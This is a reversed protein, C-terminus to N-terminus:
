KKRRGKRQRKLRSLLRSLALLRKRDPPKVELDPDHNITAPGTVGITYKLLVSQAPDYVVTGVVVDMRPGSGNDRPISVSNGGKFLFPNLPPGHPTTKAHKVAFDKITIQATRRTGTYTINWVVLDTAKASVTSVATIDGNDDVTVNIPVTAGM